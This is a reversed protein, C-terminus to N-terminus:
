ETAEHKEMAALMTIKDHGNECEVKEVDSSLCPSSQFSVEGDDDLVAHTFVCSAWVKITAGCIPCKDFSKIM